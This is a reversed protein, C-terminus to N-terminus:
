PSGLPVIADDHQALPISVDEPVLAARVHHNPPRSGLVIGLIKTPALPEPVDLGDPSLRSGIQHNARRAVIVLLRALDFREILTPNQDPTFEEFVSTPNAQTDNPFLAHEGERM